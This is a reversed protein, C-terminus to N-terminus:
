RNIFAAFPTNLVKLITSVLAWASFAILFGILIDWIWGIAASRKGPNDSYVVMYIGAMVLSLVALPAAITFLLFRILTNIFVFVDQVTCEKRVIAGNERIYEGNENKTAYGCPILGYGESGQALLPAPFALGTLLFLGVFFNLSNRLDKSLLM